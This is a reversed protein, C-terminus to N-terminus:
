LFICRGLVNIYGDGVVVYCSIFVCCRTNSDLGTATAILIIFTNRKSFYDNLVVVDGSDTIAFSIITTMSDTYM